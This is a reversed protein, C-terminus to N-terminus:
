GARPTSRRADPRRDPADHGLRSEGHARRRPGAPSVHRAGARHRRAPAPRRLAQGAPTPRLGRARRRPDGAERSRATRRGPHARQHPAAAGRERRVDLVPILNFSQFIFGIKENRLRSREDDSLHAVDRGEVFVSGEDPEDICGVMNLLTSKGSGSAGVLATFEGRHLDLTVGRLAPVLAEGLRYTKHVQELRIFSSTM